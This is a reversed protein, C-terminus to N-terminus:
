CDPEDDDEAESDSDSPKPSGETKDTSKVKPDDEQQFDPVSWYATHATAYTLTSAAAAFAFIASVLITRPLCRILTNM